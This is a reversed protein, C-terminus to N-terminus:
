IINWRAASIPIAALGWSSTPSLSHVYFFSGSPLPVAANGGNTGKVTTKGNPSFTLNGFLPEVGVLLQSGDLQTMGAPNTFVTSADQDRAGQGASALGVDPTGQEYLMLGASWAM